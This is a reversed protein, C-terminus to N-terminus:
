YVLSSPRRFGAVTRSSCASMLSGHTNSVTKVRAVGVVVVPFFESLKQSLTELFKFM